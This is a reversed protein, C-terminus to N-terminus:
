TSDDGISLEATLEKVAGTVRRRHRVIGQLMRLLETIEACWNEAVDETILSRCNARNIWHRAERGSGRAIYFLRLADRHHERGDAEVINAGFSDASRVLQEGITRRALDHWNVVETWIEDSLRNARRYLDTSEIEASHSFAKYKESM